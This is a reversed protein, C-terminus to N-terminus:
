FNSISYEFLKFTFTSVSKVPLEQGDLLVSVATSTSQMLVPVGMEVHLASVSM